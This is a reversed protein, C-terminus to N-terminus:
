PAEGLYRYGYSDGKKMFAFQGELVGERSHLILYNFDETYLRLECDFLESRVWGGYSGGVAGLITVTDTVPTNPRWDVDHEVYERREWQKVKSQHRVRAGESKDLYTLPRGQVYPIDGKYVKAHRNRMAIHRTM